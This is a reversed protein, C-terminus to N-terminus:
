PLINKRKQSNKLNRNPQLHNNYHPIPTPPSPAKEPKRLSRNEPSPRSTTKQTSSADGAPTRPAPHTLRYKPLLRRRSKYPTAGLITPAFSISTLRLHSALSVSTLRLHPALSASTAKQNATTPKKKNTPALPNTTLQTRNAEAAEETEGRFPHNGDQQARKQPTIISLKQRSPKNKEPLYRRTKGLTKNRDRAVPPRTPSSLPSHQRFNKKRPPCM